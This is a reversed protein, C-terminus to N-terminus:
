WGQPLWGVRCGIKEGNVAHAVSGFIRPDFFSLKEIGLGTTPGVLPAFMKEGLGGPPSMAGGLGRAFFFINRIPNGSNDYGVTAYMQADDPQNPWARRDDIMCDLARANNANGRILYPYATPVLATYFWQKSGTTLQNIASADSPPLAWAGDIQASASTLKGYDSVFLLGIQDLQQNAADIRQFVEKGLQDAKVRVNEGLVPAGGKDKSFFAGIEFAASIGLAVASAPPGAFNGLKLVKSILSLVSETKSTAAPQQLGNYIDNSIQQLDVYSRSGSKEFPRQLRDIYSQVNRVAAFEKELETKVSDFQAQTFGPSGGPYNLGTLVTLKQGWDASYRQWYCARIEPCSNAPQCFGVAKCVYDSVANRESESAGPALQPFSTAPQWATAILASNIGGDPANPTPTGSITPIMRSDRGRAVIGTLHAPPYQPDGYPGHDYADSSEAPAASSRITGVAAYTTTGDLANLLNANAGIRHLQAIVQAWEPGAAKPKGISQVFVLPGGPEDFATKMATAAATQLDRDGAPNNGNTAITLNAKLQMTFSEFVLVHFGATATGPLTGKFDNGNIRMTNSTGTGTVHTDYALHEPTAVDYLQTGDAAVAQNKQLYGDISGSVAPKNGGPIRTTAAGNEGGPVGIVSFQLGGSLAAVNEESLVPGGLRKLISSFAGLQANPVGSRGSIIMLYRQFNAGSKYTDVKASLTNMGADSRAVTGSDVVTRTSRELVAWAIEGGSGYSDSGIQIAGSPGITRLTAGLPPDDPSVSVTVTDYSTAGSGKASSRLRLRYTGPTTARLTPRPQRAGQLQYAAAKPADVVQWRHTIDPGAFLGAGVTVPPAKALSGVDEGADALLDGRVLSLKASSRVKSGDASVAVAKIENRGPRLGDSASLMVVRHLAGDAGVKSKRVRKGNVEFRVDATPGGSMTAVVPAKKTGVDFSLDGAGGSAQAAANGPVFALALVAFACLALLLVWGLSVAPTKSRSM